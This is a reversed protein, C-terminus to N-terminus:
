MHKRERRAALITQRICAWHGVYNVASGGLISGVLEWTVAKSTNYARESSLLTNLIGLGDIKVSHGLIPQFSANIDEGLFLTPFFKERLDEENPGILTGVGPATRQLYHWELQLLM